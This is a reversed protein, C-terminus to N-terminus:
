LHSLQLETHKLPEGSTPVALSDCLGSEFEPEGLELGWANRHLIFELAQSSGPLELSLLAEM